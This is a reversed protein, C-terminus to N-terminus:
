KTQARTQVTHAEVSKGKKQLKLAATACELLDAVGVNRGILPHTIFSDPTVAASVVKDICGVQVRVLVLDVMFSSGVPRCEAKGVVPLGEALRQPIMCTEAGMDMECLEDRSNIIGEMFLTAGSEEDSLIDVRKVVKPCNRRM